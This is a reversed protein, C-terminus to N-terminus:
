RYRGPCAARRAPALRRATRCSWPPRCFPEFARAQVDPPMGRGTGSVRILVYDGPALDPPLRQPEANRTTVTVSGGMPMADRANLVLNLLAVELQGRDVLVPAADAALDRRIQITPGVSRELLDRIGDILANPNVPELALQQNRAFALLQRTLGGGREASAMARALLEDVHKDEIQTRAMELNGLVVALLNNFDHALGATLQGVVELKQSQALVAEVRARQQREVDLEATRAAMNQQLLSFRGAGVWGAALALMVASAICLSEVVTEMNVGRMAAARDIGTGIYVGGPPATAPVYGVIRTVGDIGVLEATGPQSSNVSAMAETRFPQGIYRPAEVNRALVIGDRDAVTIVAQETNPIEALHQSLWRLNLTAVIIGAWAGDNGRFPYAIPLVPLQAGHTVAYHGVALDASNRVAGLNPQDKLLETPMRSGSSCVVNGDWDTVLLSVYRDFKNRLDTLRAACQEGDLERIPPMTAIAILLNRTGQVINVVDSHVLQAMRLADTRVELVRESRVRFENYVGAAAIPALVACLFLM